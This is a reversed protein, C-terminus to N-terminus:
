AGWTVGTLWAVAPLHRLGIDHHMILRMLTEDRSFAAQMVGNADKYAAETSTAISIANQDGIIVHSPHILGIESETGGGLNQPINNTVKVPKRRLMGEAMEPYAKNGNGDRLNTLYMATRPSMVWHAASPDLNQNMLALELRGLDNDVKQLDPTATMTLINLAEYATGILQNRLGLPTNETGAGRLFYLDEASAAGEVIDDRVLIDVSTSASRLLDNSIPVLGAFKKASLKMQGFTLGSAPVDQQEGVYGFSAGTARRNTTLNGNPLPIVRPGMSRVVSAPRLLEIIEGAVAEPVLYGGATANSMNQNAFLGSDGNAEAIQHAQVISGQAAALYRTMRAFTVGKPAPAAPASPQGGAPADPTQIVGVPVALSARRRELDELTKLEAQLKDDEATLANFAEQQEATIGTDDAIANTIAEMEDLIVARRARIKTIRDM